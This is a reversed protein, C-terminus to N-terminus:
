YWTYIPKTSKHFESVLHDRLGELVKTLKNLDDKVIALEEECDM